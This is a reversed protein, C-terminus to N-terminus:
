QIGDLAVVDVNDVGYAEEATWGGFTENCSGVDESVYELRFCFVEM